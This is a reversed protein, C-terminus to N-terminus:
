INQLIHPILRRIRRCGHSNITNPTNMPINTINACLRNTLGGNGASTDGVLLGVITLVWNSGGITRGSDLAVAECGAGRVVGVFVVSGGIGVLM